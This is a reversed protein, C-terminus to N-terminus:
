GVATDAPALVNIQTPSVYEVFAANGNIQVSVGGLSAPFYGNVEDSATFIRTAAALGTGYIATCGGPAIGAVGSAASIAGGDSIM